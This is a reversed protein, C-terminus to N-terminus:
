DQTATFIINTTYTGAPFSFGPQARYQINFTQNGGRDCDNLIRHDNDGNIHKYQHYGGNIQGGTNNSLIRMDLVDKVKMQPAPSTTGAYTFYDSSAEVEVDFKRNSRVRIQYQASEVGNAYDNVTSFAMNVVSGTNSVTSTFAIEIADNLNLNTTQTASSNPSQAYAAISCLSIFLIAVIKKM